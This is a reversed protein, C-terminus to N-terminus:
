RRLDCPPESLLDFIVRVRLCVVSILFASEEPLARVMWTSTRLFRTKTLRSSDWSASAAAGAGAATGWGTTSASCALSRSCSDCFCDSSIARWAASSLSFCSRSTLALCSASSRWTACCAATSTSFVLPCSAAAGLVVPVNCLGAPLGSLFSSFCFFAVVAHFSSAALFRAM